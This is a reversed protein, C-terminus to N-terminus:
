ALVVHVFVPCITLCVCSGGGGGGGRRVNRASVCGGCDGYERCFAKHEENQAAVFLINKVLIM